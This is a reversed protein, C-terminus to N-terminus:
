PDIKFVASDGPEDERLLPAAAQMTLRAFGCRELVIQSARHHPSTFALLPREAVVGLFQALAATAVGRGWYPRGLWYGVQRPTVPREEESDSWLAFCVLYGALEGRWVIARLDISPDALIKAWHADFNTRSRQSVRALTCAELDDQQEFLIPLDAQDVPRLQVDKYVDSREPATSM